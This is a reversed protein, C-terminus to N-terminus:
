RRRKKINECAKNIEKAYLQILKIDEYTWRKKDCRHLIENIRYTNRSISEYDASNENKKFQASKSLM